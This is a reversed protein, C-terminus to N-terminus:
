QKGTRTRADRTAPHPILNDLLQLLAAQEREPAFLGARADCQALLQAYYAPESVARDILRALATSDGLPFYGSYDDGLMGRNGSIDSALVPVGSRIAEIIVNAGGEMRSALVTLYSRRLYQRARAHPVPGLWRYRAVSEQTEQAQEGLEADLAAGIHTMRVRPAAVLAAARMFTLPDKEARLHGVMTIDLFRARASRAFPSLAPASQHIVCAKAREADDLERLGEAQLLVLRTALALSEQSSADSRIDRYLDTGTLVVILPCGPMARATAAISNASRRAHLAIVADCQRGDWEPLLAVRYHARLFRAWRSATQWNGNNANATAPSIIAVQPKTM